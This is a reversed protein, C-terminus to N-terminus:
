NITLVVPATKSVGGSSATITLNRPGKKVKSDDGCGAVALLVIITMVMGLRTQLRRTRLLGVLLSLALLLPVIQRISMPPTPMRPSPPIMMGIASITVASNVPTVGDAPTVPSVPTCTVPATAGTCTITVAQNFGGLPTITVNFSGTRGKKVTVTAPATLTFDWGTGTLPVTHPSGVATDTITLTGARAGVATPAFTVSFTCNAGAALTVPLPAGCTNTQAFDGSIGITNITLSTSGTNTLTVTKAASTTTLLQGSFTLSTPAFGVGPAGATGSGTLSVNFSQSGSLGGNTIAVTIVLTATAPGVGAPTFTVSVTCSAGAAISAGCTNSPSAFDAANTGSFTVSSGPFPIPDSTNNTLTVTKAVSTVGVAQTGFALSTPSIDLTPILTLKAIFADSPGKLTPQFATPPFVPFSSAPSFTQGTIFANPPNAADLAIAFGQEQTPGNGGFFTSYKLDAAGNGGPNLKTLFGNGAVSPRTPELAGPTVPFDASITTGVVYANGAGDAQIANGGDENTGGLYTSYQLSAAGAKTTDLLSVFAVGKANGTTQFAGTTTPFLLSKTGGTAYAVNNPGLAIGVGFDSVEGGLYTSYVLSANGSKTTDIKAVFATGQTNGAPSLTQFANVTTPFDTSATAGVIYANGSSDAAVGFGADAFGLTLANAGAGGLYTSYIL